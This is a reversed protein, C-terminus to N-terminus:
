FSTQVKRHRERIVPQPSACLAANSFNRKRKQSPPLFVWFQYSYWNCVAKMDNLTDQETRLTIPIIIDTCSCDEGIIHEYMQM